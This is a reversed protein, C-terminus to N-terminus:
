LICLVYVVGVCFLIYWVVFYCCFLSYLIVRPPSVFYDAFVIVFNKTRLCSVFRAPFWGFSGLLFVVIYGFCFGNYVPVYVM